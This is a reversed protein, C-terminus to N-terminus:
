AIKALATMVILVATLALNVEKQLVAMYALFVAQFVWQYSTDCAPTPCVGTLANFRILRKNPGNGDWSSPIGVM